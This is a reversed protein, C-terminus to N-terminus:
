HFRNANNERRDEQLLGAAILCRFWGRWIL